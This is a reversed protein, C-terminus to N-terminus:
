PNCFQKSHPIVNVKLWAVKSENWDKAKKIPKYLADVGGLIKASNEIFTWQSLPLINTEHETPRLNSGPQQRKATERNRPKATESYPM